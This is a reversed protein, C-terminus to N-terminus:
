EPKFLSVRQTKCCVKDYWFIREPDKNYIGEIFKFDGISKDSGFLHLYQKFLEKKVLISFSGIQCARPKQKTFLHDPPLVKGGIEGKFFIANPNHTEVIYKMDSIFENYKLKDDDDLILVYKGTIDYEHETIEFAKNAYDAGRGITDIIFIQEYDLDNQTDISQKNVELMKPRKYCRTMITVFPNENSRRVEVRPTDQNIINEPSYKKDFKMRDLKIIKNRDPLKRSSVFSTHKIYNSNKFVGVKLDNLWVRKQYDSDSCHLFFREDLIGVKDITTQPIMVCYWMGEDVTGVTNNIWKLRQHIDSGIVADHPIVCGMDPYSKLIQIMSVFLNKNIINVDTNLLCHYSSGYQESQKIGQNIAKTFGLNTSNDIITLNSMKLKIESLMQKSGDDSGNEIVIINVNIGCPITILSELLQKTINCTQYNPIIISLGKNM